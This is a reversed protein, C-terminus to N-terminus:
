QDLVLAYWKARQMMLRLVHRGQFHAWVELAHRGSCNSRQVQPATAACADGGATRSMPPSEVRWLYRATHSRSGGWSCSAGACTETNSTRPVRGNRRMRVSTRAACRTRGPLVTACRNECRAARKQEKAGLIERTVLGGAVRGRAEGAAGGVERPGRKRPM